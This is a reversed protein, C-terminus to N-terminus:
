GIKGLERQMRKFAHIEKEFQKRLTDDSTMKSISVRHTEIAEDLKKIAADNGMQRVESEVMQEVKRAWEERHSFVEESKERGQALRYERGPQIKHSLYAKEPDFYYWSGAQVLYDFAMAIAFMERNKKGKEPMIDPAFEMGPIVHLPDKGKRRQDYIVKYEDMGRLLFAPLGHHIRVVDVRDRFGTTKIEYQSGNRYSAPILSSNEDEIGIISKGEMDHLGRNPDYQWFPHCYEVLHDLKEEIFKQPEIGQKDAITKLVSLLSTAELHDVFFREAYELSATKIEENLWNSMARYSAMARTPIMGQFVTSANIQRSHDTYYEAFDVEIEQMFEYGQSKAEEKSAMKKAANDLNEALINVNTATSNLSSKLSIALAALQDYIGASQQQAALQLTTENIRAMAALCDRKFLSFKKKWGNFNVVRELVDEPGDDLRRLADRAKEFDKRAMDLDVESCGQQTIRAKFGDLCTINPEIMGTPAPELLRDLVTLAFKLGWKAIIIAVEQDFATKFEALHAQSFAGIKEKESRRAAQNQAEQADVQSVAAAVSDTKHISPEYQMKIKASELMDALLDIDRLRLQALLTSASIVVQHPDPEGMWGQALLAGALRYSCYNLLREKPFILSAAALSSFARRMGEFYDGLAAVNATFGRMAGAISSGTDLFIAQAIMAYIDDTANLRYGAQNGIDLVFRYDFPPASVEVPAGEPYTVDWYPNVSLATDEKFWAYTNARIKEKQTRTENKIAKDIVPPLVGISIVTPNKDELLKRMLYAVDFSMASGTGGGPSFVLVVRCGQEVSYKMADTSKAETARINEIEFMAEAAANLKDIFAAGRTRENFMRFLALRAVLRMQLPSGGGALMGAPVDAGPWWAKITPYNDINRIVAAPNLGSLEVREATSFWPKAMPDIDTDIDMWLFRLVPVDGYAQHLLKKVRWGIQGSSTGLFIFLTPQFRIQTTM